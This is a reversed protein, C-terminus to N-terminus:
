WTTKTTRKTWCSVLKRWVAARTIRRRRRKRRKRHHVRIKGEKGGGGGGAEFSSSESSSSSSACRFSSVKLGVKKIANTKSAKLGKSSSMSATAKASCVRPFLENFRSTSIAASSSFSRRMMSRDFCLSSLSSFLM